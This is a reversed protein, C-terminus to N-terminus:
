VPVTKPNFAPTFVAVPNRRHAANEGVAEGLSERLEM